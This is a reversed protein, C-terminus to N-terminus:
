QSLDDLVVKPLKQPSVVMSSQGGKRNKEGSGCGEVEGETIM